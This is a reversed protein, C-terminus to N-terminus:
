LLQRKASKGSLIWAAGCMALAVLMSTWEDGNHRAAAVRPIHLAVVIVFFMLGLLSAALRSRIGTAIALAAAAFAVGIFWAWFLHAPIWGPILNAIFRAYMFHQVAFVVLSAAFLVRGAGALFPALTLAAGALALLEFTSTWHGPGRFKQVLLPGHVVFVRVLLLAVLLLASWGAKKGSAIGFASVLLVLDSIYIWPVPSDDMPPGPKPGQAFAHALSLVAFGAMALAFLVRGAKNLDPL